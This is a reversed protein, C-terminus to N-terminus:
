ANLTRNSDATTFVGLPLDGVFLKESEIPGAERDLQVIDDHTFLTGNVPDGGDGITAFPADASVVFTDVTGTADAPDVRIYAGNLQVDVADFVDSDSGELLVTAIGSMPDYEVLDSRNFSTAGIEADATTSFVINGNDKVYVADINEDAATFIASGDFLM